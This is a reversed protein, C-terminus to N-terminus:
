RLLMRMNKIDAKGLGDSGKLWMAYVYDKDIFYNKLLYIIKDRIDM